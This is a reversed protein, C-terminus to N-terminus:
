KGCGMKLIRALRQLQALPISDKFVLGLDQLFTHKRTVDSTMNYNVLLCSICLVIKVRVMSFRLADQKQFCHLDLDAPKLSALQDPDM